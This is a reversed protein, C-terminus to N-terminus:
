CAQFLGGNDSLLRTFATNGGDVCREAISAANEAEGKNLRRPFGSNRELVAEVSDTPECGTGREHHGSCLNRSDGQSQM